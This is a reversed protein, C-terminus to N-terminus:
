KESEDKEFFMWLRSRWKRSQAQRSQRGYGRDYLESEAAKLAPSASSFVDLRALLWHYFSPFKLEETSCELLEMARSQPSIKGDSDDTQELLLMAQERIKHQITEVSLKMCEPCFDGQIFGEDNHLLARIKGVEFMRDCVTCRLLKPCSSLKRELRIRM